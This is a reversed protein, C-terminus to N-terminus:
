LCSIELGVHLLQPHFTLSGAGAAAGERGGGRAGQGEKWNIFINALMCRSGKQSSRFGGARLLPFQKNNPRRAPLWARGVFAASYDVRPAASQSTNHSLTALAPRRPRPPGEAPCVVGCPWPAGLDRRWRRESGGRASVRGSSPREVGPQVGRDGERGWGWGGRGFLFSPPPPASLPWGEPQLSHARGRRGRGGHPPRPAPVARAQPPPPTHPGTKPCSEVRPSFFMQRLTCFFPPHPSLLQFFLLLACVLVSTQM